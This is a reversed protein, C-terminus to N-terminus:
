SKAQGHAQKEEGWGPLAELQRNTFRFVWFCVLIAALLVLLGIGAWAAYPLPGLAAAGPMFTSISCILFFMFSFIIFLIAFARSLGLFLRWFYQWVFNKLLKYFRAWSPAEEGQILKLAAFLLASLVFFVVLLPWVPGWWLLLGFMIAVYAVFSFATIYKEKGAILKTLSM